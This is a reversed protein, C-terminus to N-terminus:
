TARSNFIENAGREASVGKAKQFVPSESLLDNEDGALVTLSQRTIPNADTLSTNRMQGSYSAALNSAPNVQVPESQQSEKLSAEQIMEELSDLEAQDIEVGEVRNCKAVEKLQQISGANFSLSLQGIQSAVRGMSIDKHEELENLLVDGFNVIDPNTDDKIELMDYNIFNPKDLNQEFKDLKDKAAMTWADVDEFLRQPVKRMKAIQGEIYALNKKLITEAMQEQIKLITKLENFKDKLTRRLDAAKQQFEAAMASVQAQDIRNESTEQVLQYIQILLETRLTIENVVENEM